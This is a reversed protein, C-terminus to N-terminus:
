IPASRPRVMSAFTMAPPQSRRDLSRAAAFCVGAGGIASAGVGIDIGRDTNIVDVPGTGGAGPVETTALGFVVGGGATVVTLSGLRNTRGLDENIFVGGAGVDFALNNSEGAASNVPTDNTLTVDGAGPGTNFLVHSALTV